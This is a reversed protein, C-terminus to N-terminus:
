SLARAPPNGHAQDAAVAGVEGQRPHAFDGPVQVGGLRQILSACADELSIPRAGDDNPMKLFAFQGETSEGLEAFYEDVDRDLAERREKTLIM